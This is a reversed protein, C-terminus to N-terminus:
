PTIFRRIEQRIPQALHEVYEASVRPRPDNWPANDIRWPLHLYGFVRNESHAPPLFVVPTGFAVCPLMAHLRSTVVWRAGAYLELLEMARRRRNSDRPILQTVRVGNSFKAPLRAVDREPVDCLVVTDSRKVEPRQLTLTVCWSLWADLGAQNCLTLTWPDRCGIPHDLAIRPLIDAHVAHFGVLLKRANGPPPWVSHTNPAFWGNLIWAVENGWAAAPGMQDRDVRLDVRPLLQELALSQIDDGVNRTSHELIAIRM